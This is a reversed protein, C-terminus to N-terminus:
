LSGSIYTELNKIKFDKEVILYKVVDGISVIGCLTKDRLVPLHRIRHDTMLKMCEDLSSEPTVTTLESSMIDKVLVDDLGKGQLIVKRIIDRESIIGVVEGGDMVVSTGASIEAMQEIAERVLQDPKVSLVDYGKSDLLNSVAGMVAEKM